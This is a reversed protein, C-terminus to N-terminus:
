REKRLLLNVHGRGVQSLYERGFARDDRLCQHVRFGYRGTLLEM